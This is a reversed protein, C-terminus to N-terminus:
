PTAAAATAGTNRRVLELTFAKVSALAADSRDDISVEIFFRGTYAIAHYAAALGLDIVANAIQASPDSPDSITNIEARAVPLEFLFLSRANEALDMAYVAVTLTSAGQGYTAYVSSVWGRDIYKPAAGDIQTYLDADTSITVPPGLALWAGIENSLPPPAPPPRNTDGSSCNAGCTLLALLLGSVSALRHPM